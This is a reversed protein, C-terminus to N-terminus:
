EDEVLFLPFVHNVEKATVSHHGMPLTSCWVHEFRGIEVTRSTALAVNGTGAVERRDGAAEPFGLIHGMVEPRPWDIMWDAWYIPRVDLPRYLCDRTRSRWAPDERMRRRAEQVKWGRSDGRPYRRSGRGSFYRERIAEDGIGEDVFEALRALLASEEFDVVFLDRATIFGPIHVPFIEDV